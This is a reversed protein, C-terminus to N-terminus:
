WSLVKEQNGRADSLPQKAAVSWLYVFVENIERGEVHM